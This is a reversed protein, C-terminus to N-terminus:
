GPINVILHNNQVKKQCLQHIQHKKKTNLPLNERQEERPKEPLDAPHNHGKIEQLTTLQTPGTNNRFM